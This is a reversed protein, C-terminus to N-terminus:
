GEVSLEKEILRRADKLTSLVTRSIELDTAQEIVAVDNIALELKAHVQIVLMDVDELRSVADAFLKATRTMPVVTASVDNTEHGFYELGEVLADMIVTERLARM